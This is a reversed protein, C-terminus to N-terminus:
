KARVVAVRAVMVATMDRRRGYKRRRPAEADLWAAFSGCNIQSNMRQIRHNVMNPRKPLINM